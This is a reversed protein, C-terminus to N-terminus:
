SDPFGFARRAGGGVPQTIWLADSQKRSSLKTSWIIFIEEWIM